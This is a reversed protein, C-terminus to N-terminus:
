CKCLFDFLFWFSSSFLQLNRYCPSHFWSRVTTRYLITNQKSCFIHNCANDNDVCMVGFKYSNSWCHCCEGFNLFDDKAIVSDMWKWTHYPFLHSVGIHVHAGSESTITVITHQITDHDAICESKCLCHLL